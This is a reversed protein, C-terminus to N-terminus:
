LAGASAAEFVVSKRATLFCCGMCAPVLGGQLVQRFHEMRAGKWIDLIKEARINGMRYSLCPYVDGNPAVRINTWPAKCSHYDELVAQNAYYKLIGEINSYNPYFRIQPGGRKALGLLAELQERLVELDVIGPLPAPTRKYEEDEMTAHCPLSLILDSTRLCSLTHYDAGIEEAVHYLEVLQHCNEPTIVTKMDIMPLNKGKARRYDALGKLNEVTREYAKPLKRIQDHLEGIGDISFGVSLADVEDVLLRVKDAFLMTGNTVMNFRRGRRHLERLLEPLDKRVFVEGGNLTVLCTCPLDDVVRLIEENSLEYEKNFQPSQERAVEQFCFSCALNCRYTIEFTIRLPPVIVLPHLKEALKGYNAKLHNYAVSLDIM